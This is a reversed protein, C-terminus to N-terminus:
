GEVVAIGHAVNEARLLSVSEGPRWNQFRLAPRVGLADAIQRLDSPWTIALHVTYCGLCVGLSWDPDLLVGDGCVCDAVYRGQNVYAILPATSETIPPPALGKRVAYARRRVLLDPADAERLGRLASDTQHTRLIHLM